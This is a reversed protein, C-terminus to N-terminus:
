FVGLVKLCQSRATHKLGLKYTCAISNTKRPLYDFTTKGINLEHWQRLVVESCLWPSCPKVTESMWLAPFIKLNETFFLCNFNLISNWVPWTSIVYYQPVNKNCHFFLLIVYQSHTHSHLRPRGVHLAWARYTAQKARCFKELNDWLRCSKLFLTVSPL